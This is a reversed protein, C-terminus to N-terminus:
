LSAKATAWQLLAYSSSNGAYVAIRDGKKFGQQLLGRALSEAQQKLESFTYRLCDAGHEIHDHDLDHVTQQEHRVVLAPSQGYDRALHDLFQGLTREDLPPETPGRAYSQGDIPTVLSASSSSFHRRFAPRCFTPYAQAKASARCPCLGTPVATHQRPLTQAKAISSLRAVKRM